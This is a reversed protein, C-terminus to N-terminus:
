SRWGPLETLASHSCLGDYELTDRAWPCIHAMGYGYNKTSLQAWFVVTFIWRLSRCEYIPIMTPSPMSTSCLLGKHVITYDDKSASAVWRPVLRDKDYKGLRGSVGIRAVFLDVWVSPSLVQSTSVHDSTLM